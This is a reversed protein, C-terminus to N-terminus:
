QAEQPISLDALAKDLNRIENITLTLEVHADPNWTDHTYDARDRAEQIMPNLAERVAKLEEDIEQPSKGALRRALESTPSPTEILVCGALVDFQSKLYKADPKTLVNWRLTLTNPNIDLVHLKSLDDGGLYINMGPKLDNWKPKVLKPKSPTTM